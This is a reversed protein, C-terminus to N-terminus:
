DGKVKNRYGDRAWGIGKLIFDPASIVKIPTKSDCEPCPIEKNRDDVKRIETFKCGCEQCCYEYMPM